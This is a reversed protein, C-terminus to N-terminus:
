PTETEPAPAPGDAGAPDMADTGPMGDGKNDTIDSGHSVTGPIQTAFLYDALDPWSMTFLVQPVYDRSFIRQDTKILTKSGTQINEMLVMGAQWMKKDARKLDHRTMQKTLRGNLTYFDTRTIFFIDKRVYHIRLDQKLGKSRAEVIFYPVRRIVRDKKRTYTLDRPAKMFEEPSFQTGM